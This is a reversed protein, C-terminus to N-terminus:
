LTMLFTDKIHGNGFPVANMVMGELDFSILAESRGCWVAEPYIGNDKMGQIAAVVVAKDEKYTVGYWKDISTLVTVTARDKELM